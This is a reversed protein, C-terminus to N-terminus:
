SQLIEMYDLNTLPVDMLFCKLSFFRIYLVYECACLKQLSLLGPVKADM